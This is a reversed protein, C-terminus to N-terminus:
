TAVKYVMCNENFVSFLSCVLVSMRHASGPVLNAPRALCWESAVEVAGSLSTKFTIQIKQLHGSYSTSDCPGNSSSLM